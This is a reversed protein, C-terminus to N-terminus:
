EISICAGTAKDFTYRRGDLYITGGELMKGDKEMYYYKGDYVILGTIAIGEEDLCYYYGDIIMWGTAIETARLVGPVEKYLLFCREGVDNFKWYGDVRSIYNKKGIVPFRKISVKGKRLIGNEDFVYTKGAIVTEGTILEGRSDAKQSFYYFDGNYKAFGTIMNGNEDVAYWSDKGKDNIKHIWTNYYIRLMNGNSDLIKFKWEDTYPDYDWVGDDTKLKTLDTNVTNTNMTNTTTQNTNKTTIQSVINNEINSINSNINNGNADVRLGSPYEIVGNVFYTIGNPMKVSGDTYHITGNAEMIVGDPYVVSGDAHYITGDEGIIDDGAYYVKAKGIEANISKDIAQTKVILCNTSLFVVLLFYIIKKAGWLKMSM